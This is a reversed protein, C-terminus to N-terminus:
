EGIQNPPDPVFTHVISAGGNGIIFDRYLWGGPVKVRSLESTFNYQRASQYIIELNEM